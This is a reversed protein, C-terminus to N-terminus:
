LETQRCDDTKLLKSEETEEEKIKLNIFDRADSHKGPTITLPQTGRCLQGYCNQMRGIQVFGLNALEDVVIEAEDRSVKLHTAVRKPNARQRFPLHENWLIYSLAKQKRSLSSPKEIPINYKMIQKGQKAKTKPMKALVFRNGLFKSPM